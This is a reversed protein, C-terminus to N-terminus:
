DIWVRVELDAITHDRGRLQELLANVDNALVQERASASQPRPQPTPPAPPAVTPVDAPPPVSSRPRLRCIHLTMNFRM